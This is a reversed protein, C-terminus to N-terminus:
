RCTTSKSLLAELAFYKESDRVRDQVLSSFMRENEMQMELSTSRCHSCLVLSVVSSQIIDLLPFNSCVDTPRQKELHSFRPHFKVVFYILTIFNMNFFLLLIFSM